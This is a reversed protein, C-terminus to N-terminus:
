ESIKSDAILFQKVLESRVIDDETYKITASYEYPMMKMVKEIYSFGSKERQRELDDQKSDGCLIVKSHKGVRTVVTRIESADMNQVEDVIIIANDYTNGRQHSTLMFDYLGLSKLNDYNSRFPQILEDIIDRYPREFPEMKDEETGKLFGIKRSEVASRIVILRKYESSAEFVESLAAYIALFTKGTGASGKQLIIPTQQYYCSLFDSQSETLPTLNILNQPSFKKAKGLHKVNSASEGATDFKHKPKGM